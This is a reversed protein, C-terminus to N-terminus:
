LIENPEEMDVLSTMAAAVVVAAVETIINAGSAKAQHKVRVLIRPRDKARISTGSSAEETPSNIRSVTAERTIHPNLPRPAKHLLRATGKTTVKHVVMAKAAATIVRVAMAVGAAKTTAVEAVRATAVAAVRATAVEVELAKVTAEEVERTTAVVARITAAAAEVERAMAVEAAKIMAEVAMDEAAEVEKHTAAPAVARALDVVVQDVRATDVVVVEEVRAMVAVKATDVEVVKAMAVKVLAQSNAMAAQHMRPCVQPTGVVAMVAVRTEEQVTATSSATIALAEEIKLDMIKLAEQGDVKLTNGEALAVVENEVVETGLDVVEEVEVLFDEETGELLAVTTLASFNKEAEMVEAEMEEAEEAM